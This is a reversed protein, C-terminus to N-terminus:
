APSADAAKLVRTGVAFCLEGLRRCRVVEVEVAKGNLLAIKLREGPYLPDSHIVQMGTQSIDALFVGSWAEERALAPFTPQRQLGARNNTSRCRMRSFRRRDDPTAPAIGSTEFREQLKPPLQVRCPLSHILREAPQQSDNRDLM